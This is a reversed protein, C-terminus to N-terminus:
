FRTLVIYTYMKKEQKYEELGIVIQTLNAIHLPTFSNILEVGHMVQPEVKNVKEEGEKNQNNCGVVLLITLTSILLNKM